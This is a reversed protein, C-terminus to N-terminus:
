ASWRYLWIESARADESELWLRFEAAALDGAIFHFGVRATNGEPLRDISLGKVEGGSSELRPQASAFDIMGLDFDVVFVRERADLISLGSRTAVVRALPLEEPPTPAWTLRYTFEHPTEPALPTEPHWFVVINDAFEDGSPIEVLTVSGRGWGEGPEVWASPRAEYHAEADQYHEFDRARQILGFSRPNEDAFASTQVGSPNRLPRWLQEGSGNIMRLGDSDHVADRFDDIGARREPGFFYMSTLPAIGIAGIERRPFLVCRVQMVTETGPALSFDFAGTVSDSDLLTSLRLVRDGPLPEQVWFASFIPFEEPDPGATGIALGRASLGYYTDHAVARFYSAGQFVAVEDWVGPRNVPYRFRLGSFGMEGGLGAPANGDPYPFYDPHFAFYETSFPMPQVQGNSVLNIEIRDRFSFGPPLMEMQFSRADAFLRRDDRFRIARFQDYRLDAFPETLEMLPRDYPQGALERARAVVTDFSFAGPAAPAEQALAPRLLPPLQSGFFGALAAQLLTRRDM